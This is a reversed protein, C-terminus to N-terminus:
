FFLQGPHKQKQYFVVVIFHKVNKEETERTTGSNASGVCISARRSLKLFASKEKNWM